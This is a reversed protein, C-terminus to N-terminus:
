VDAAGLRDCTGRPPGVAALGDRKAHIAAAMFEYAKSATTTYRRRLRRRRAGDDMPGGLSYISSM